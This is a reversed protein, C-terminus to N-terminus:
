TAPSDPAATLPSQVDSGSVLEVREVIAWRMPPADTRVMEIRVRFWSKFGPREVTRRAKRDFRKVLGPVSKQVQVVQFEFRPDADSKLRLVDEAVSDIHEKFASIANDRDLRLRGYRTFTVRWRWGAPLVPPTWGAFAEGIV